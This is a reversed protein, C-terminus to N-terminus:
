EGVLHVNEMFGCVDVLNDAKSKHADRSIKQLANMMCVQRATM